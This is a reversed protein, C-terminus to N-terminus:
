TQNDYSTGCFYRSLQSFICCINTLLRIPNDSEDPLTVDSKDVNIDEFHEQNMHDDIAYNIIPNQRCLPCAINNSKTYDIYKYICDFCLFNRCCQLYVPKHFSMYCIACYSSLKDLLELTDYDMLECFATQEIFLIDSFYSKQITRCLVSNSKSKSKFICLWETRPISDKHQNLICIGYQHVDQKSRNDLYVLYKM